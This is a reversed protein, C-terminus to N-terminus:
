RRLLLHHSPLLTPAGGPPTLRIRVTLALHRHARLARLARGDLGVKFRVVGAPVAPRILRGVRSLTQGRTSALAARAALLDVELRGGSGAPSVDVSGNVSRGHAGAALKVTTSAFPSGPATPSGGGLVGAVPGTPTTPQTQTTTTTTSTTTTTTGNVSVTIVGAMAARHVTCWFSYAGPQSFTCTGSWSTGAEAPTKGVVVGSCTPTAPNGPRWEVGHPVTTPNTITVTTGEPVEVREPSWSHTEGYYGGHNEAKIVTGGTESGAVAPLVV